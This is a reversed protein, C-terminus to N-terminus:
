AEDAKKGPDDPHREARLAYKSWDLIELALIKTVEVFTLGHKDIAASVAEAIERKAQDVIRTRPHITIV